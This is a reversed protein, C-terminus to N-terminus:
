LRTVVGGSRWMNLRGESSLFWFVLCWVDGEMTRGILEGHVASSSSEEHPFIEEVQGKLEVWVVRAGRADGEAGGWVGVDEGLVQREV